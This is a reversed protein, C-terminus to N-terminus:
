NDYRVGFPINRFAHPLSGHKEKHCNICLVQCKEIEALIKKWAVTRSVMEAIKAVKNSPDIHDFHFFIVEDMDAPFVHCSECGTQAKIVNTYYRYLHRQETAGKM